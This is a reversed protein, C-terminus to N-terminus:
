FIPPRMPQLASTQMHALMSCCPYIAQRDIAWRQQRCAGPTEAPAATCLGQWPICQHSVILGEQRVSLCSTTKPSHTRSRCRCTAQSGRTAPPATWRWYRRSHGRPLSRSPLFIHLACLFRSDVCAAPCCSAASLSLWGGHRARCRVQWERRSYPSGGGHMVYGGKGADLPYTEGTPAHPHTFHKM